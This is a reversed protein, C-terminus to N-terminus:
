APTVPVPINQHVIQVVQVVFVAPAGEDECMAKAAEIAEERTMLGCNTALTFVKSNDPSEPKAPPDKFMDAQVPAKIKKMATLIDNHNWTGQSEGHRWLTWADLSGTNTAKPLLQQNGLNVYYLTHTERNYTYYGEFGPIWQSNTRDLESQPVAKKHRSEYSRSTM